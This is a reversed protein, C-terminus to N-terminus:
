ALLPARGSMRAVPASKIPASYFSDVPAAASASQVEPQAVFLAEPVTTGFLQKHFVCLLCEDGQIPSRIPMARMSSAAEAYTGARDRVATSFSNAHHHASGFTAAYIIPLLVLCAILRRLLRNTFLASLSISRM